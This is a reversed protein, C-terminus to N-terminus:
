RTPSSTRPWGSACRRRRRPCCRARSSPSSTAPSAPRCRWCRRSSRTAWGPRACTRASRRRRCRSSRLERDTVEAIIATAEEWSLDEPGHVAHVVRGSWDGSLLRATAVDGIDRPDVWALPQDVPNAVEVLGAAIAEAQILLNTFFFGCRLHVVAAATADLAEETRALGDIEGAGHRKEAGVSSQFVVHAVGHEEVARAANDGAKAYTAIPDDDDVPPDVWFLATAGETARLVDDADLQDGAVTDVLGRLEEELGEPHRLFLTPRAGAQVLLRVVRSGVHGTPTTVVIKTKSGGDTV